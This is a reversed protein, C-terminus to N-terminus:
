WQWQEVHNRIQELVQMMETLQRQVNQLEGEVNAVRNSLEKFQWSLARQTRLM